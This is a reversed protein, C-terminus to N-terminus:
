ALAEIAELEHEIQGEVWGWYGEDSEGRSVQQVWHARTFIPHEGREYYALALGEPDLENDRELLAMTIKGVLNQMEAQHLEGTAQEPACEACNCSPMSQDQAGNLEDLQAQVDDGDIAVESVRVAEPVIVEAKIGMAKIFAAISSPLSSLQAAPAQHMDKVHILLFGPNITQENM